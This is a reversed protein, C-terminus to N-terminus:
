PATIMGGDELKEKTEAARLAKQYEVKAQVAQETRGALQYARLLGFHVSADEDRPLAAKL